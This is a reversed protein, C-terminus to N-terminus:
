SYRDETALEPAAILQLPLKPLLGEVDCVSPRTLVEFTHNFAFM